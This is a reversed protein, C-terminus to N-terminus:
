SMLDAIDQFGQGGEEDKQIDLPKINVKDMMTQTMQAQAMAEQEAKKNKLYEKESYLLDPDVNFNQFIRRNVKEIKIMNKFDPSAQSIQAIQAVANLANMVQSTDLSKLKNDLKTSYSVSYDKGILVEPMPDIKGNEILLEFARTIVESFFEDYLRHIVPTIVQVKEAVREGVEYATMNKQDELMLFLDNYFLDKIEDKVEARHQAASTLDIDGSYSWPQGKSMNYANVAGPSLDIDSNEYGDIFLPPNLKIEIGDLIDCRLINIERMSPLATFAPGRGYVSGSKKFFRPVAYPFSSYGGEEVIIKKEKEVYYSAFPKNQKNKLSIDRGERAFVAHFFTVKSYMASPEKAKRITDESLKDGWKEYANIATMEFERFLTKVKGDKDEAIRCLNVPFNKFHLKDKDELFESYLIGTHLSTYYTMMEFSELAFNSDQLYKLTDKSAETFYDIVDNNDDFDKDNVRFSYFEDGMSITNSFIGSALVNNAKVGVMDFPKTTDGNGRSGTEISQSEPQYFYLCDEWTGKLQQHDGDLSAFRQCLEEGTLKKM